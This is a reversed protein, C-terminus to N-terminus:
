EPLSDKLDALVEDMNVDTKTKNDDNKTFKKGTYKAFTKQKSTSLVIKKKEKTTCENEIEMSMENGDSTHKAKGKKKNKNKPKMEFRFEKPLKHEEVCHQSREDASM